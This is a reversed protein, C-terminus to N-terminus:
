KSYLQEQLQIRYIVEPALDRKLKDSDHWMRSHQNAYIAITTLYVFGVVQVWYKYYQKDIVQNFFYAMLFFVGISALYVYRDAMIAFRDMPVIHLVMVLHIIFFSIGFLVWKQKWFNFFSVIIIIICAPYIWFRIPVEQGVANPFLYIYQLKVPILCKVLYETITYCAFIVNQYFPYRLQRIHLDSPIAKHSLLTISTFVVALLILPLKEYWVVKSRIDRKLVYDILLFCFPLIVAQEKAGFSLVFLTIILLYYKVHKSKVYKVYVHLATLYFFAYILVKSAAVWAVSEVLFPHVAMLLATIFAIRYTSKDDFGKAETLLLKIFSYTLLVNALHILVSFLHFWFPNYGFISYIISYYLQNVPAYQGAYFQTLILWLNDVRLGGGTYGNIVIVQDDWGLQFKNSLVPIYVLFVILSLSISIILSLKTKAIEGSISFGKKQMISSNM